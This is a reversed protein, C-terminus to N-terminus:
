GRGYLMNVKKRILTPLLRNNKIDSSVEECKMNNRGRSAVNFGQITHWVLDPGVVSSNNFLPDATRSSLAVDDGMQFSIVNNDDIYHGLNGHMELKSM